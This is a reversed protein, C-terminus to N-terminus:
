QAAPVPPPAPLAAQLTSNAQAIQASITDDVNALDAQAQAGAALAAPVQAILSNLEAIAANTKDLAM